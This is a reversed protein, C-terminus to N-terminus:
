LKVGPLTNVLGPKLDERVQLTSALVWFGDPGEDRQEVFLVNPHAAPEVEREAWAIYIKSSM